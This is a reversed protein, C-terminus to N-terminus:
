ANFVSTYKKMSKVFLQFINAGHIPKLTLLKKDCILFIKEIKRTESVLWQHVKPHHIKDPTSLSDFQDVQSTVELPINVLNKDLDEKLDRVTSCWAFIELIEPLDNTRLKSEMAMLVIDLSYKFTTNHHLTLEEQTFIRRAMVRRRDNMMVDILENFATLAEIKPITNLDKLRALTHCTMVQLDSRDFQETKMAIKLNELYQLPEMECNRDEDLYDDILQLTCFVYRLSRAQRFSKLSYLYQSLAIILYRRNRLSFYFHQKLCLWEMILENIM